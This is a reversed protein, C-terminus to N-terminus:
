ESPRTSKFGLGFFKLNRPVQMAEVCMAVCADQSVFVLELIIVEGEWIGLDGLRFVSSSPIGLFSGLETM